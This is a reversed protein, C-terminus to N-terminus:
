TQKEVAVMTAERMRKWPMLVSLGIFVIERRTPKMVMKMPMCRRSSERLGATEPCLARSFPTRFGRRESCPRCESSPQGAATEAGPMFKPCARRLERVSKSANSSTGFPEACASPSWLRRSSSASSSSSSAAVSRVLSRVSPRWDRLWELEGPPEGSGRLDYHAGRVGSGSLGYWSLSM